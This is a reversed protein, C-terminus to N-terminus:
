ADLINRAIERWDVESLAAGLLDAFTTAGLDPAMETVMEKLSDALEVTPYEAGRADSAM